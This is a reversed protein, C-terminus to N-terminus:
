TVFNKSITADSRDAHADDHAALFPLCAAECAIDEILRVVTTGYYWWFGGDRHGCKSSRHQERRESNWRARRDLDKSRLPRYGAVLGGTFSRRLQTRCSQRLRYAQMPAKGSRSGRSGPGDIADFIVHVYRDRPVLL